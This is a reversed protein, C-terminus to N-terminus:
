SPSALIAATKADEDIAKAFKALQSFDVFDLLFDVSYIKEFSSCVVVPFELIVRPRKQSQKLVPISLTHDSWEWSRRQRNSM